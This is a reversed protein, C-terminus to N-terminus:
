ELAELRTTIDDLAEQLLRISNQIARYNDRDLDDTDLRLDTAEIEYRSM